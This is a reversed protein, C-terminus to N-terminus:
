KRAINAIKRAYEKPDQTCRVDVPLANYDTICRRVCAQAVRALRADLPALQHGDRHRAIRTDGADTRLAVGPPRPRLQHAWAHALRLRQHRCEDAIDSWGFQALLKNADTTRPQNAAHRAALRDVRAITNANATSAGIIMVASYTLAPRIISQYVHAITPYQKYTRLCAHLHGLKRRAAVAKAHVHDNFLMARDFRVGLYMLHDSPVTIAGGIRLPQEVRTSNCLSAIMYSNKDANNELGIRENFSIIKDADAELEGVSSTTLLPKTLCLDDAYMALETGASLQVSQLDKTAVIFLLPGVKSGQLVSSTVDVTRSRTENV